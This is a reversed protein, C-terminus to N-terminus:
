RQGGARELDHVTLGRGDAVPQRHGALAKRLDEAPREHGGQDPHQQSDNLVGM